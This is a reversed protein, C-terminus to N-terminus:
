EHAASHHLRQGDGMLLREVSNYFTGIKRRYAELSFEQQARAKARRALRERLADDRLLNALAAGMERPDPEVLYAIEDDLVQTHTPLRTALLPRGSDLYSYIKMPTNSGLIRPSTLVDAQGLYHGLRELPKPGLFSVRESIGLDSCRALYERIHKESGGIMVLRAASVSELTHAFAELLLDIGQYKELNGVYMVVPEDSPIREEASEAIQFEGKLLSFDEVTGILKDPAHYRALQELSRCVTLVALSETVARRECADLFWRFARLAHYKEVLQQAVSSDMDYVFPVDFIHKMLLAIFSSEEVAHILDYRKGKLLEFCRALLAIDCIVKRFSFGPPIQKIRPIRPIRYIRCHPIEVDEGKHYTLLDVMHGAQTLTLILARVAIPTGRPEFFPQPALVLIRM